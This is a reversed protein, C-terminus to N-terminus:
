VACSYLDIFCKVSRVELRSYDLGSRLPGMKKREILEDYSMKTNEPDLKTDYISGRRPTLRQPHFISPLWTM